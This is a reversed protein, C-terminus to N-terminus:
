RDPNKGHLLRNDQERTVTDARFYSPSGNGHKAFGRMLEMMLKLERFKRNTAGRDVGSSRRQGVGGQVRAV